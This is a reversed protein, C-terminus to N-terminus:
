FIDRVPAHLKCYRELQARTQVAALKLQRYAREPFEETEATIAAQEPVEGEEEVATNDEHREVEKRGTVAGATTRCSMKLRYCGACASLAQGGKMQPLCQRGVKECRDCPIDRLINSM